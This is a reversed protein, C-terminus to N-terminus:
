RRNHTNGQPSWNNQQYQDQRMNHIQERQQMVQYNQHTPNQQYNQMSRNYSDQSHQHYNYSPGQNYTPQNGQQQHYQAGAFSIAGFFVLLVMVVMLQRKDM